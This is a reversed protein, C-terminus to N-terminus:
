SFNSKCLNEFHVKCSIEFEISYKIYNRAKETQKALIGEGM